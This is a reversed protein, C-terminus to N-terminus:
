LAGQLFARFKHELYAGIAKGDTVGFLSPEPHNSEAESFRAAEECQTVATLAPM